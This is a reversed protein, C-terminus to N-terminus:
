YLVVGKEDKFEDAISDLTYGDELRIFEDADIFAVWKCGMEHLLPFSEEYAAFQRNRNGIEFDSIHRLIVNDTPFMTTDHPMSGIDEWLIIRGFGLGLHHGIWEEIYQNENKITTVITFDPRSSIGM